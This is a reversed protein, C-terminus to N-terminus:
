VEVRSVSSTRPGKAVEFRTPMRDALDRIHTVIGVMRGSSGLEEIASSVVDLTDPDLTGFGEDLFVSGLLPTSESALERIGDALALALSLSTLFTEGGSLTRVDRREDANRHDCVVFADEAAELGYQGGSLETLRESARDGLDQLAEALLWREFNKANLLLGVQRAVTQDEELSTIEQEILARREMAARYAEVAAIARAEAGALDAIAAAMTTGIELPRCLEQLDDEAQKRAGTADEAKNSLAARQAVLESAQQQAWSTLRAWSAELGDNGLAPPGLTAVADRAASLKDSAQRARDGLKTVADDAAHWRRDAVAAREIAEARAAQLATAEEIQTEITALDPADALDAVRQARQEALAKIQAALELAAQQTDSEAKIALKRAKTAEALLAQAAALEADPDHDPIAHVTQDCVPCPAGVELTVILATAGARQRAADLNQEAADVEVQANLVAASAQDRTAAATSLKEELQPLREDIDALTKRDSLWRECRARDPGAEAAADAATRAESADKADAKAQVAEAKAQKLEADLEAVGKPVRLGGLLKTLRENDAIADSVEKARRSAAEHRQVIETALPRATQLARASLELQALGEPTPEGGRAIEDQLMELKTGAIAARANAAKAMRAYVELDLLKRLLAQRNAPKDHLFAAFAGQPLVVTKTFQDFTLGLLDPVATRMEDRSGAIVEGDLEELRAERTTAGAKTRKVIRVARYQQEGVEFDLCVKAETALTHIVPAVLNENDYRPISGYLAFVIGDIISSKGSGTPGVFAVLDADTFDIKAPDRFGSFGELELRLPRM